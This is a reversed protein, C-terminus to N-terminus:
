RNQVQRRANFHTVVATTIAGALRDQYDATALLRAERRNSVFGCEILVAPRAHGVLVRFGARRVGRSEIGAQEFAAHLHNAIAVSEPRANRAIYFTAGSASSNHAADSHISLFVDARSRDALRARDDLEMFRDDLRTTTVAAGRQQLLEVLRRTVDLNIKKEPLPGVGLAGPDHGGHGADVVIRLGRLMQATPPMPARPPPTLIPPSPPRPPPQTALLPDPLPRDVRQPTACGTALLLTVAITVAGLHPARFHGNPPRHLLM